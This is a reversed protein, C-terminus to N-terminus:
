VKPPICQHCIAVFNDIVLELNEPNRQDLYLGPNVIPTLAMLKHM